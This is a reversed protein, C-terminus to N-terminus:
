LLIQFSNMGGVFDPNAYIRWLYTSISVGAYVGIPGHYQESDYGANELAQWACELFIRHQPDMLAAEKPNIGFFPGDLLEVDELVSAAKVYNPNNLVAPAVSSALLEEDTFFTILERGDRLKQWFEDLNPAMPFRGAMGVIAIESSAHEDPPVSNSLHKESASTM